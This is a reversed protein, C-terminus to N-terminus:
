RGLPFSAVTEYRPRNGPGQGLFSQVLAFDDVTFPRGTFADLVRLWRTVEVPRNLRALTVHPKFASGGPPAGAKVAAARAGTALRRLEEL